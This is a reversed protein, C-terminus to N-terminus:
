SPQHSVHLNILLKSLIGSVSCEVSELELLEIAQGKAYEFLSYTMPSGVLSQAQLLIGCRRCWLCCASKDASLWTEKTISVETLLAAVIARKSELTRSQLPFTRGSM